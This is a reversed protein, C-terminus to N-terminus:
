QAAAPESDLPEVVLRPRTSEAQPTKEAGTKKSKTLNKWKTLKLACDVVTQNTTFKREASAGPKLTYSYYDSKLPKSGRALQVLQLSVSYTDKTNNVVKMIWERANLRSVSGGIPPEEESLVDDGWPAPVFSGSTGVNRTESLTGSNPLEKKKKKESSDNASGKGKKRTQSPSDDNDITTEASAIRQFSIKEPHLYSVSAGAIFPVLFVPHLILCFVSIFAGFFKRPLASRLARM